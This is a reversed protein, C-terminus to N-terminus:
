QQEGGIVYTETIINTFYQNINDINTKNTVTLNNKQGFGHFAKDGITTLAEELVLNTTSTSSAYFGYSGIETVSKTSQINIKRLNALAAYGIYTLANPLSSFTIDDGSNSMGNEKIKTLHECNSLSTLKLSIGRCAYPGIEELSNPLTHEGNIANESLNKLSNLFCFAYDYFHTITNPLYIGTLTYGKYGEVGEFAYARVSTYQGVDGDEAHEFFIHTATTLVSKFDGVQTIYKGNYKIPLTIKGYIEYESNASIKCGGNGLEEFSFYKNDTVNSLVEEKVFVAYFSKDETSKYSSVNVIYEQCDEINEFLPNELQIESWGKFAFRETLPLTVERSHTPLVKIEYFNEGYVMPETEGLFTSGSYFSAKYTEQEYTAYLKILMNDSSFELDDIDENTLLEGQENSWGIFRYHLKSPNVKIDEHSISNEENGKIIQHTIEKNEGTVQDIINEVLKLTYAPIGHAVIINLNPYYNDCLQQLAYDSIANEESNYVYIDGSLYPYTARGDAYTVVDKFKNDGKLNDDDIFTNLFEINTLEDKEEVLSSDEIYILEYLLDNKWTEENYTYQEFTHYDTKKVYRKEEDYESDPSIKKYPSWHINELSFRMESKNLEMLKKMLYYSGYNMNGGVIQLSNLDTTKGNSFVGDIDIYLGQTNNFYGNTIVNSSDTIVNTLKTPEILVLKTVTAPLHLIEIMSGPALSIGKINTGLARFEKLKEAGSVDINETLNGMNSLVVQELLPKTKETSSTGANLSFALLPINNKYDMNDNGLQLSRLRTLTPLTIENIYWRSLDGLSSIYEGGGIYFLQDTLQTLGTAKLQIGEENGSVYKKPQEQIIADHYLSVYQDLYPIIQLSFQGDLVNGSNGEPDSTQDTKNLNGRIRFHGQAGTTSYAGALWKSDVYNLRNRLFLDRQLQRTGQLCYFRAGGDYSLKGDTNIYGTFTPSIYKWYQDVNIFNFPRNGQMAYSDMIMPDYSYSGKLKEETLGKSRIDQYTLQIYNMFAQEFNKWLVSDATSFINDESPEVNYEWSPVGSNNVGLQTDIDYFLPYWIYNGGQEHPGWSALMMNKGRSDYCLLLETIIFYIACYELDFWSTFEDIFKALRYEATDAEYIIENIIRPTEFPINTASTQDTSEVWAVVKELNNYVPRLEANLQTQNYTEYKGKLKLIDDIMDSQPHYRYEFDGSVSLKGTASDIEDFASKKFSVRGSQNHLLEWCEAVDAISKNAVFPHPTKDNFGIVNNCGKDLNFNYRGIFEYAGNKKKQFVIMPFGYITTRRNKVDNEDFCGLDQLPHKSYLDKALNAFGTNHSMSSEMYDAKWTFSSESYFPSGDNIVNDMYYNKYTIGNFVNEEGIEKGKLPGNTYQWHNNVEKKFKGKYNRRPYGQSSTGQVDFEINTAKFSPCGLLYEQDSIEKNNYARDLSPNVFTVNVRKKGDKVYPLMDDNSVTELVAYPLLLNDPNNENYILMSNYNITPITGQLDIVTNMDYLQADRYDSIYNHVIGSTTLGAKYVRINYIDVDCYTSNIIFSTMEGLFSDNAVDYQKISSLIGNIYMLLLPYENGEAKQELVFSVTVIEDEEYRGSILTQKSKFFSDQTGFCFGINKDADDNFYTGWVGIESNFNEGIVEGEADLERNILTRYEKVNRLKFRIEFTISSEDLKEQNMISLPISISAGNSVRLVSDNISEDFIWGNNYWNFNNFSVKTTGYEWTERSKENEANSRGSSTLNVILGGTLIKFDRKEDKIVNVSIMASSSGCSIIINNTGIELNSISWFIWKSNSYSHSEEAFETNNLYRKVVVAGNANPDYIMYELRLYDYELIETPTNNFWVLPAENDKDVFAISYELPDSYLGQYELQAKLKYVGHPQKEINWKETQNNHTISTDIILRDDLYIKIITGNPGIPIAQFELDEEFFKLSSFNVDKRLSLEYCEISLYELRKSGSNGSIAEVVLTHSGINLVSGLDFSDVSGSAVRKSYKKTEGTQSNTVYYNIIVYADDSAEVYFKIFSSQKYVYQISDPTYDQYVLNLYRGDPLPTDGSGGGGGTGSVAIKKCKIVDTIKDYSVVKYFTGDKNIILDDKRPTTSGKELSSYYILYTLDTLDQQVNEADAYLVAAGTGGVSIRETETDLYMKGSDTAFYLFGNRIDTKAIVSEPGQIPYFPVGNM